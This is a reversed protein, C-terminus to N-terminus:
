VIFLKSGKCKGEWVIANHYSKESFTGRLKHMVRDLAIFGANHRTKAYKEGPNGLGAILRIKHQSSYPM